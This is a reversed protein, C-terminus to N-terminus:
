GLVEREARVWHELDKGQPCGEERWIEKAREAIRGQLEETSVIKSKERVVEIQLGKKHAQVPTPQLAAVQVQQKITGRNSNNESKKKGFIGWM